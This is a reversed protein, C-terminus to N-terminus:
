PAYTCSGSAIENAGSGNPTKGSTDGHCIRINDAPYDCFGHTEEWCNYTYACPANSSTLTAAGDQAAYVYHTLANKVTRSGICVYPCTPCREAIVDCYTSSTGVYCCHTALVPAVQVTGLGVAMVVAFGTVLLRVRKGDHKLLGQM